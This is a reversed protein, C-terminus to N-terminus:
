NGHGTVFVDPKGAKPGMHDGAADSAEHETVGSTFLIPLKKSEAGQKIQDRWDTHIEGSLYVEWNM